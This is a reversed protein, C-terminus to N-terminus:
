VCRSTYLLCTINSGDKEMRCLDGQPTQNIEDFGEQKTFYISNDEIWLQVCEGSYIQKAQGQLDVRYIGKGHYHHPMYYIYEGDFYM